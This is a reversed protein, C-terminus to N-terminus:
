TVRDIFQNLTFSWLLSEVGNGKNSWHKPFLCYTEWWYTSIMTQQNVSQHSDKLHHPPPHRISMGVSRPNPSLSPTLYINLVTEDASVHHEFICSQTLNAMPHGYLGLFCYKFNFPQFAEPILTQFVLSPPGVFSTLTLMWCIWLFCHTLTSLTTVTDFAM